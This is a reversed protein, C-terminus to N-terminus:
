LTSKSFDPVIETYVRGNCKYLGFVITKGHAGRGRLGKVPRVGFYSEDVEVEGSFPSEAECFDATLERIAALYRNFTNRNLSSLEAIQSADLDVDFLRM